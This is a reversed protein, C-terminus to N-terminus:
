GLSSRHGDGPHALHHIEAGVVVQAEGVVGLDHRRSVLRDLPVAVAHGRDSEDAAREVEMPDHLGVDRVVDTGVVRDQEGGTEIRVPRDEFWQEAGLVGHDGIRQVVRRDDVADPQALGPPVPEGGPVHRVELRFEALGGVCAGAVRHDHGVPDEAHVAVEGVQGRDALDGIPESREHHDVVAVGGPKM